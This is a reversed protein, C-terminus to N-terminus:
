VYLSSQVVYPGLSMMPVIIILSDERCGLLCRYFQILSLSLDSVVSHTFFSYEFHLELIIHFQAGFKIRFEKSAM